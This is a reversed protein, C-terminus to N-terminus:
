LNLKNKWQKKEEKTLPNSGEGLKVIEGIKKDNM